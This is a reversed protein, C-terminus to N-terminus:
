VGAMGFMAGAQIMDNKFLLILAFLILMAGAFVELPGVIVNFLDKILAVFGGELGSAISGGVSGLWNQVAESADGGLGFLDNIYTFPNLSPAGM